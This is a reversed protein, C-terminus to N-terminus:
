PKDCVPNGMDFVIRWKGDKELRWVSTFTSVLTGRPDYVPGKSLALTSLKMYRTYM